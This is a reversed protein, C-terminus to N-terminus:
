LAFDFPYTDASIYEEDGACPIKESTKLIHPLLLAEDSVESSDKIPSRKASM